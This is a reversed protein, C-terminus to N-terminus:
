LTIQALSNIVCVYYESIYVWCGPTSRERGSFWLFTIHLRLPGPHDRGPTRERGDMVRRFNILAKCYDEQKCYLAAIKNATSLTFVHDPGHLKERGVLIREDLNIAKCYDKQKYHLAAMKQATFLSLAHDSGLLEERRALIQGHRKLVKDSNM